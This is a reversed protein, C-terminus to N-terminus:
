QSWDDSDDDVLAEEDSFYGDKVFRKKVSSSSPQLSIYDGSIVAEKYTEVEDM